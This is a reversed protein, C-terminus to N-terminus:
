GGVRPCRPDGPCNPVAGAPGNDATPDAGGRRDGRSGRRDEVVLKGQSSIRLTGACAVPMAALDGCALWAGPQGAPSIRVMQRQTDWEYVRGAPNGAFGFAFDRSGRFLARDDDGFVVLTEVTPQATQVTGGNFEVSRISFAQAFAGSAAIAALTVAAIAHLSKRM